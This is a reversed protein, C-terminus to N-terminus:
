LCDEGFLANCRASHLINNTQGKAKGVEVNFVSGDDGARVESSSGEAPNYPDFVEPNVSVCKLIKDQCAHMLMLDFAGGKGKAAHALLRRAGRATVAYAFTCVPNRSYHVSRQGEKVVERIHPDLGQYKELPITTNDDFIVMPGDRQDHYPPDSCHGMWLVDWDDGYPAPSRSKTLKKVARSIQRTQQRVDVDWDVDDEMILASGWGNQIIFKLLDLHGLWAMAAGHAEVPGFAEFAKIFDESWGPQNPITVTIGSISSAAKIGDVRWKTGQSLALIAQFGLTSNAASADDYESLQKPLFSPQFEYNHWLVLFLLVAVVSVSSVAVRRNLATLM